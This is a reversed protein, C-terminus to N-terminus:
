NELWADFYVAYGDDHFTANRLSKSFAVYYKDAWLPVWLSLDIIYRQMEAYQEAREDLDMTTRAEEIMADLEPDKIHSMNLGTGANSSHFWLSAIDPDDYTYGMMEAQHNGAKAEELLTAFEVQQIEMKVGIDRLQSQVVQAARGWSDSPQNLLTFEFKEGDKELIGDNDTDEWGAEVLLAKAQDVDYQPSYEEAGDWYGFISPSLFGYALQGYEEVAAGMVDAKNVAHNLARRVRVDDFPAKTINFEMFVLGFRLYNVTWYQGSDVIRSIDVAPLTLQHTEGAEFAAMRSAEEMISLYTIKEIYAPGEHMGEPGWNYDPNRKLVIRDGTRWEEIMWPGTMV